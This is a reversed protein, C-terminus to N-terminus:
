EDLIGNTVSLLAGSARFGSLSVQYPNGVDSMLRSIKCSMGMLKPHQWSEHM